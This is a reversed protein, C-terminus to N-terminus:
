LREIALEIIRQALRAKSSRDSEFEDGDMALDRDIEARADAYLGAFVDEDVNNLTATLEAVFEMVCPAEFEIAVNTFGNAGAKVNLGSVGKLERDDMSLYIGKGHPNGVTSHPILPLDFKFSHNNKM